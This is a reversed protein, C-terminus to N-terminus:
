RPIIGSTTTHGLGRDEDEAVQHNLGPAWATVYLAGTEGKGMLKPFLQPKEMRLHRDIRNEQKWHM